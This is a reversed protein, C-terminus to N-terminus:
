APRRPKPHSAQAEADMQCKIWNTMAETRGRIEALPEILENLREHIKMARDEGQQSLLKRNEDIRVALVEQVTEVRSGIRHVEGKLDNFEHRPVWEPARQHSFPQPIPYQKEPDKEKLKKIGVLIGITGLVVVLLINLM